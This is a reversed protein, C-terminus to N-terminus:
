QKKSKEPEFREYKFEETGRIFVSRWRGPGTGSWYVTVKVAGYKDGDEVYDARRDYPIGGSTFYVPEFLSRDAGTDGGRALIIVAEAYDLGQKVREDSVYRVEYLERGRVHGLVRFSAHHGNLKEWTYSDPEHFKPNVKLLPIHSLYFRLPEKSSPIQFIPPEEGKRLDPVAEYPGDSDARAVCAFCATLVLAILLKM